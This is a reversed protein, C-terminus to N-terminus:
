AYSSVELDANKDTSEQDTGDLHMLLPPLLLFDIVLAITITSATLSAMASNIEFSSQGLILFGAVLVATTVLLAVGVSSFAYRVSDEANLGKERRARLYKSLFHVTDDVVIGLTIAAVVSVAMNVQGVILGWLGFAIGAPLLNPVLSILGIKLSRLAFILIGSILILGLSMGLLMGEINRKSVYSFMVSTGIGVTERGTIRQFEEQAADAFARVRNSSIAGLVAMVQTESKDINIQNNLDLGYPLSLEYLLFYQASLNRDEPIRYYSEDEGHLSKNLRKFIDTISNVYVVDPQARLWNTFEETHNLFEPSSVGNSSGSPLSFHVQYLGTLNDVTFDTDARFQIDEDFYKVFQDDLEIRPILAVLALSLIGVFALLRGRRAIVFEALRTLGVSYTTFTKKPKISVVSILAPVFTVALVFAFLVGVATINGLDRFPPADSFNMTLFGIATTVTTLFIPQMNIRVSDVLADHKSAGNAIGTFMTTLLHISDAVCLTMIIVPASVSASNLPINAWGSLGIAAASSFIVLSVTAVMGWVSRLLFLMTFFIVLFMAPILSKIDEWSAEQFTTNMVVVGTLYTEIEPYNAEVEAALARAANATRSVEDPELEPMQFTVNVGTISGDQNILRNAILPSNLAVQEARAIEESSLNPADYILDTVTLDDDSGRIEQFNTISDVRIAFELQWAKETLEEIAQLVRPQFVKGSKPELVFLINDQKTYVDQLTEFAQLQPNEESFWIRYDNKFFLKTSGYGAA